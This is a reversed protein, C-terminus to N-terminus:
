EEIWWADSRYGYLSSKEPMKVKDWLAVWQKPQYYLPVVYYGSLLARDLARIATVFDERTRAELMASIMADIAPEKAGMYNRSGQAHAAESGWYFSQENGPSLSAFWFNLIMDFDFTQRRQEYQSSEVNRVNAQIGISKLSNAYNLALREDDPSVVLIEFTFPKGEANKLAGDAVRWGAEQLLTLAKRRNERNGGSGDSVPASYGNKMIEPDIVDEYPALLAREEASAPRGHSSLESGDYYSQVREYAGYFLNKNAWEFDFAYTLAKRVTKDAFIPRRTNFVFGRMGSPTEAKISLQRVEGNQAAPFDFGSTWRAPDAEPRADYLGAKFAEFSANTDRFYDYIIRDANNLGRNVALDKGWYDPNRKYTIRTGPKVEKVLYPGSGTMKDFSTRDFETEEYVHKPLIPMLGMILPMERDINEKDFILKVTHADPQEIKEVKSYYYRHNPRGKERLLKITFIVDEATVPEGDSFRAEERLRFSVWSRDEPTEVSEALLGYLSFPEDYSRAMLSELVHERVGLGATGRVILPNLSDFSGTAALRLTGGKPADPNAYSFHTFGPEYLPKGHMAIGHSPDAQAAEVGLIAAFVSLVTWIAAKGPFVRM